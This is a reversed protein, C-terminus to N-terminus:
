YDYDAEYTDFLDCVTRNGILDCHPIYATHTAVDTEYQIAICGGDDDENEYGYLTIDGKM